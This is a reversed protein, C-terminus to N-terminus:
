LYVSSYFNSCAFVLKMSVIKVQIEQLSKDEIREGIGSFHQEIANRVANSEESYKRWLKVAGKYKDCIHKLNNNTENWQNVAKQMTKEVDQAVHNECFETIPQAYVKLDQM